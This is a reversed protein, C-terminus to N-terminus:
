KPRAMTGRQAKNEWTYFLFASSGSRLLAESHSSIAGKAETKGKPFHVLQVFNNGVARGASIRKLGRIKGWDPSDEARPGM